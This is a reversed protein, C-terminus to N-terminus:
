CASQLMQWNIKDCQHAAAWIGPVAFALLAIVLAFIAVIPEWWRSKRLESSM